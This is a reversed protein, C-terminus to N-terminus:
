DNEPLLNNIFEKAKILIEQNVKEEEDMDEINVWDGVSFVERFDDLWSEIYEEKTVDGELFDDVIIDKVLKLSSMGTFDLLVENFLQSTSSIPIMGKEEFQWSLVERWNNM